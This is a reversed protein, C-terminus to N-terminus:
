RHAANAAAMITAASSIAARVAETVTVASRHPTTIAAAVVAIAARDRENLRIAIRDPVTDTTM